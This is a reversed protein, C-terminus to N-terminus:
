SHFEFTLLTKILKHYLSIYFTEDYMEENIEILM